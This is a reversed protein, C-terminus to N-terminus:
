GILEERNPTPDWTIGKRKEPTIAQPGEGDIYLEIEVGNKRLFERKWRPNTM